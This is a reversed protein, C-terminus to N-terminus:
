KSKLSEIEDLLENNLFTLREVISILEKCEDAKENFASLADIDIENLIESIPFERDHVSISTPEGLKESILEDDEDFYKTSFQYHAGVLKGDKWRVLVEYPQKIKKM